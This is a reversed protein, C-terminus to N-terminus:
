TLRERATARDIGLEAMLAAVPDPPEAALLSLAMYTAWVHHAKTRTAEKAARNIVAQAASSMRPGKRWATHSAPPLDGVDFGIAALAARDLAELAARAGSLDVGLAKVAASDAQHLLGLFLHETSLLRDGRQQAEDIAALIIAGMGSSSREAM